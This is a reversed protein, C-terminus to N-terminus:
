VSKQLFVAGKPQKIQGYQSYTPQRKFNKHLAQGVESFCNARNQAREANARALAQIPEILGVLEAKLAKLSEAEAKPAVAAIDELRADPELGAENILAGTMKLRGQELGLIETTISERKTVVAELWELPVRPGIEESEVLLVQFLQQHQDVQAKLNDILSQLIM